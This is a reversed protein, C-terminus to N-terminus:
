GGACADLGGAKSCRMSLPPTATEWPRDRPSRDDENWKGTVAGMGEESVVRRLVRVLMRGDIFMATKTAHSGRILVGAFAYPRPRGHDGVWFVPSGSFGSLTTCPSVDSLAIRRCGTM